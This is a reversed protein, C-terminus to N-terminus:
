ANNQGINWDAMINPNALMVSKYKKSVTAGGYWYSAGNFAMEHAVVSWLFTGGSRELRNVAELMQRINVDNWAPRRVRAWSPNILMRHRGRLTSCACTYRGLVLIDNYHLGVKRGCRLFFDRSAQSNQNVGLNFNDVTLGFDIITQLVDEEDEPVWAQAALIDPHIAPGLTAPALQPPAGASEDPSESVARSPTAEIGADNDVVSSGDAFDNFVVDHDGYEVIDSNFMQSLVEDEADNNNLELDDLGQTAMNAVPALQAPQNQDIALQARPSPTYFVQGDNGTHSYTMTMAQQTGNVLTNTQVPGLSQPSQVVMAAATQVPGNIPGPLTAFFGEPNPNIFQAAGSGDYDQATDMANEYKAFDTNLYENYQTFNNANYYDQGAVMDVDMLDHNVGLAPDIPLNNQQPLPIGAPMQQWEYNDRTIQQDWYQVNAGAPPSNDFSM